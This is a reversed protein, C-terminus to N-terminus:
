KRCRLGTPGAVVGIEGGGTYKKWFSAYIGDRERLQDHTGTEAIQAVGDVKKLVIIQDACCVSSLRHAVVLRTCKFAEDLTKKFRAETDADQANTPEDFLLVRPKQLNYHSHSGNGRGDEWAVTDYQNVMAMIDDRLGAEEAAKRAEADKWEYRLVFAELVVVVKTRVPPVNVRSETM